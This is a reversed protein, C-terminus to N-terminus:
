ARRRRVAAFGAVGALALAGPTPINITFSDTGGSATDWTWTYTGEALGLSAFSHGVYTASGALADGSAYGAPTVLVAFDWDLGFADTFGIDAFFSAGSGVSAPGAFGSPSDYLDVNVAPGVVMHGSPLMRPTMPLTAALTWASTDLTGAGTMVVNGGTESVNIVVDGSASSALTVATGLIIRKM